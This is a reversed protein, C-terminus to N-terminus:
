IIESDDLIFSEGSSGDSESAASKRTRRFFLTGLILGLSCLSVVVLSCTLMSILPLEGEIRPSTCQTNSFLTCTSVLAAGECKSCLSCQVGYYGDPRDSCNQTVYYGEPCISCCVSGEVQFYDEPCTEAHLKFLAGVVLAMFQKRHQYM